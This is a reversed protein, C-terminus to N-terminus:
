PQEWNDLSTLCLFSFDFLKSMKITLECLELNCTDQGINEIQRGISRLMIMEAYLLACDSNVVAKAVKEVYSKGGIAEMTKKEELEDILLEIGMTGERTFINSMYEFLAQNAFKLFDNEKLAIGREDVMQMVHECDYILCGLFRMEVEPNWQPINFGVSKM